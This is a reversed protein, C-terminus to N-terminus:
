HGTRRAAYLMGFGFPSSIVKIDHTFSLKKKIAALTGPYINDHYELAIRRFCNLTKQSLSEFIKREAGEIDMKLLAIENAHALQLISEISIVKIIRDNQRSAGQILKHDLSRGGGDVMMGEGDYDCVAHPFIDVRDPYFNSINRSLCDFNELFPEFALIKCFPNIKAVQITFLGVHAGIDLIIDNPKPHYFARPLYSKSYWIELITLVLGRKGSPHIISKGNLLKARSLPIDYQLSDIMEWANRFNYLLWLNKSLRDIQLWIKYKIPKLRKITFLRDLRLILNIIRM